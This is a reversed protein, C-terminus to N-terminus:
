LKEGRPPLKTFIYRQSVINILQKEGLTKIIKNIGRISKGTSKQVKKTLDSRKMYDGEFKMIEDFIVQETTMQGDDKPVFAEYVVDKLPITLVEDIKEGQRVIKYPIELSDVEDGFGDLSKALSTLLADLLKHKTVRTTKMRNRIKNSKREAIALLLGEHTRPLRLGSKAKNCDACSLAFNEIVCRGGASVPVIHDIHWESTPPKQKRCYACRYNWGAKISNKEAPSLIRRM